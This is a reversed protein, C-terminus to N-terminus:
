RPNPSFPVIAAFGAPDLGPINVPVEATVFLTSTSGGLFIELGKPSVGVGVRDGAGSVLDLERDSVDTLDKELEYIGIMQNQEM